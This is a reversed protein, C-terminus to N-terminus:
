RPKLPYTIVEEPQGIESIKEPDATVDPKEETVQIGIDPIWVPKTEM